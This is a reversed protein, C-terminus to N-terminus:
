AIARNNLIADAKRGFVIQKYQSDYAVPSFGHEDELAQIMAEADAPSEVNLGPRGARAAPGSEAKGWYFDTGEKFGAATLVQTAHKELGETVSPTSKATSEVTDNEEDPVKEFRCVHGDDWRLRDPWQTDMVEHGCERCRYLTFSKPPEQKQTQELVAAVLRRAQRHILSNFNM